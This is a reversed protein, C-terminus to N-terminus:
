ESESRATRRHNRATGGPRGVGDRRLRTHRQPRRVPQDPCRSCGPHTAVVLLGSSGSDLRHVIGPRMRDGVDEIDPFRALLGNALTGTLNGPVPICSWGPHNTSWSSMTRGRPRRRVRGISRTRAARHGPVTGSRGLRAAGRGPAGQGVTGSRRRGHRWRCRDDAGRRGSEPRRDPRRDSRPTARRAGGSGRRRAPRSHGHGDTM